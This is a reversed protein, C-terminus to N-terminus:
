NLLANNHRKSHNQNKNHKSGKKNVRNVKRKSNVHKRNSRRRSKRPRTISKGGGAMSGSDSKEFLTLKISEKLDEVTTKETKIIKGNIDTKHERVYIDVDNSCTHASPKYNIDYETDDFNTPWKRLHIDTNTLAGSGTVYRLYNLIKMSREEDSYGNVVQEFATCYKQYLEPEGMFNSHITVSRIFKDKDLVFCLIHFNTDFISISAFLNIM